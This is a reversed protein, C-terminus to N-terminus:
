LAGSALGAVRWSGVTADPDYVQKMAATGGFDRAWQRWAPKLTPLRAAHLHVDVLHHGDLM